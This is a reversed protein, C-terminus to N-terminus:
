KWRDHSWLWHAPDSKIFEEIKKNMSQTINFIDKDYDNTRNIILPEEIFFEFNAKELRKLFVPVLLADYKIALQAPTTTTTAPQNFFPVRISSSLRQDIMLALPNNTSIHKILKKTGNSGKEIQIPCIYKKRIFEMIPNLFINNLPRYIAGINFGLEQLCKAMLEFNAFHGSFFVVPKNNKKLIEFNNKKAFGIKIKKLDMISFKNIHIYEGFIRGINKWMREIMENISNENLDPFAILINKKAITKKRFLPGFYKGIIEGLDSSLKLGIIKFVLFFFIVLIFELFYRIIKM